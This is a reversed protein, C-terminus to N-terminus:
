AVTVVRNRGSTKAEYMASDARAVVSDTNEGPRVLTVGISLTSTVRGTELGISVSSADRIKEAVATAEGLNHLGTLIILLEDGGIRAAIDGQRINASIREALTRLM